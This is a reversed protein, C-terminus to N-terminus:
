CLRKFSVMIRKSHLFDMASAIELLIREKERLPYSLANEEVYAEMAFKLDGKACYELLVSLSFLTLLLSFLISRKNVGLEANELPEGTVISFTTINFYAFL